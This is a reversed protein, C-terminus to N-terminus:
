QRGESENTLRQVIESKPKSCYLVLKGESERHLIATGNLGYDLCLTGNKTSGNLRTALYDVFNGQKKTIVAICLDNFNIAIQHVGNMRMPDGDLKASDSFDSATLQPYLILDGTKLGEFHTEYNFAIVEIGNFKSTKM